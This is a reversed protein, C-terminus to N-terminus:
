DMVYLNMSEDCGFGMWGTMLRDCGGCGFGDDM